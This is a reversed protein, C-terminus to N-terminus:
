VLYPRYMNHSKTHCQRERCEFYFSPLPQDGGGSIKGPPPVLPEDARREGVNGERGDRGM